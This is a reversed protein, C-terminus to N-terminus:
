AGTVGALGDTGAGGILWSPSDSTCSPFGQGSLVRGGIRGGGLWAGCGVAVVVDDDEAGGTEGTLEGGGVQGLVGGCVQAPGQGSAVPALELRHTRPQRLDVRREGLQGQELRVAGVVDRQPGHGLGSADHDGRDTGVQLEALRQDGGARGCAGVVDVEGALRLEDVPHVELVVVAGDGAAGPDHMGAAEVGDRVVDAGVVGHLLESGVVRDLQAAHHPSARHGGTAGEVGCHARDAPGLLHALRHEGPALLLTTGLPALGAGHGALRM